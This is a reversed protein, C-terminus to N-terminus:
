TNADIFDVVQKVTFLSDVDEDPVEVDFEREISLVMEIADLSDFNLDDFLHADTTIKEIDISLERNILKQLKELTSAM